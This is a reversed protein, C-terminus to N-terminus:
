IRWIRLPADQHKVAERLLGLSLKQFATDHDAHQALLWAAQAGIPGVLREGPWGYKAVARKLRQTNSLDIRILQELDHVTRPQHPQEWRQRAQQDRHAMWVLEACLRKYKALIIGLIAQGSSNALLLNLLAALRNM